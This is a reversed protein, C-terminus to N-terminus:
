YKLYAHLDELAKIVKWGDLSPNWVLCEATTSGAVYAEKLQAANGPGCQNNDPAGLWYWTISQDIETYM